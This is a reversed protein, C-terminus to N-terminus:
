ERRGERIRGLSCRGYQIIHGYIDAHGFEYIFDSFYGTMNSELYGGSQVMELGM